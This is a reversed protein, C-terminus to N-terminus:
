SKRKQFYDCTGSVKGHEELIYGCHDCFKGSSLALTAEAAIETSPIADPVEAVLKYWKGNDTWWPEQSVMPKCGATVLVFAEVKMFEEVFNPRTPYPEAFVTADAISNAPDRALVSLCQSYPDYDRLESQLFTRRAGSSAASRTAIVTVITRVGYVLKASTRRILGRSM